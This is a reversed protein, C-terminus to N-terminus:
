VKVLNYFFFLTKTIDNLSKLEARIVWQFETRHYHHTHFLVVDQRRKKFKITALQVHQKQRTIGEQGRSTDKVNCSLLGEQRCDYIVGVAGCNMELEWRCVAEISRNPKSQLTMVSSARWWRSMCTFYGRECVFHHGHCCLDDLCTWSSKEWLQLFLLKRTKWCLARKNCHWSYQRGQKGRCLCCVMAPARAKQIALEESSSFKRLCSLSRLRSVSCLWCSRDWCTCLAYLYLHCVFLYLDFQWGEGMCYVCGGKVSRM